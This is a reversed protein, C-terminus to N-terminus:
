EILKKKNERKNKTNHHINLKKNNEQIKHKTQKRKSEQVKNKTQNLYNQQRKYGAQRRSKKSLKQQRPVKDKALTDGLTMSYLASLVGMLGSAIYINVGIDTLYIYLVVIGIIAIAGLLKACKLKGIKEKFVKLKENDNIEVKILFICTIIASGLWICASIMDETTYRRRM